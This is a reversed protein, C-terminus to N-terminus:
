IPAACLSPPRPPRPPPPPPRLSPPLPAPACEPVCYGFDLALEANGKAGYNVLLQDGAAIAEGAHLEAEQSGFGLVNKTGPIYNGLDFMPIMAPVGGTFITPSGFARSSVLSYAARYDEESPIDAEPFVPSLVLERALSYESRSLDRRGEAMRPLESGRTLRLVEDPWESAVEVRQPIADFYPAWHTDGAADAAARKEWLIGLAITMWDDIVTRDRERVQAIRRGLPSSGLVCNVSFVERSRFVLEGPRVDRTLRLGYGMGPFEALELAKFQIRRREAWEFFRDM